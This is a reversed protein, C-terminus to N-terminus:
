WGMRAIEARIQKLEAVAEARTFKNTEMIRRIRAETPDYPQTQTTAEMDTM